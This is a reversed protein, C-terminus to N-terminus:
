QSWIFDMAGKLDILRFFREVVGYWDTGSGVAFFWALFGAVLPTSIWGYAIKKLIRLNLTRHDRVFGIGIVAGVIAQSSSVPVGVQTFIHLTLAESLVSVLAAFPDLPIIGKGVTMMTRRSFTLVGLAISMGGLITAQSLTLLHASVYAGTVNAVNNAGLAYAGYCGTVMIGWFYLSNLASVSRVKEALMRKLLFHLVVSFLSAGFPTAVWCVVIRYFASFDAKGGYLAIGMLAGVIAQSSSAPIAYITLFTMTLAAALICFFSQAPSLSSLGSLAKVCKDGEIFAGLMVFFATITIATRYRILGSAVGTGFINASDNAGLSWGMLFGGSLYLYELM